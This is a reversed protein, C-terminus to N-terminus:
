RGAGAVQWVSLDANGVRASAVLTLNSALWDNLDRSTWDDANRIFFVLRHDRAIEALAERRGEPTLRPDKITEGGATTPRFLSFDGSRWFYPYFQQYLASDAFVFGAAEVPAPDYRRVFDFAPRLPHADYSAATWDRWAVVTAPAAILAAALAVAVVARRELRIAAPRREWGWLDALWEWILGIWLVTRGIVALALLWPVAGFWEHYLPWELLNFASLALAYGIARRWPLLIAVFPLVYIIFQPSYGKSYLLFGVTSIASFLVLNRPTRAAPRFWLIAYLLAFGAAIPLTPLRSRFAIYEATTPDFRVGLPAVKGYSTYGDLLAWVTEWSSRAFVVRYSALFYTPSLALFPAAILLTVVAAGGLLALRERRQPLFKLGVPALIAPFVKTMFGLGTVAGAAAGQGRLLLWVGLLLLFCPLSDYWGVAVIIPWVLTAYLAMRRLAEGRPALRLAIAGVLAVTAVDALVLPLGLVLHYSAAFDKFLTPPFLLTLRYAGVALWPFVPPYEVWYDRFPYFGLDSLEGLGRYFWYDFGETILLLPLRLAAALVVILWFDGPLRGGADPEPQPAPHAQAPVPPSNPRTTQASAM